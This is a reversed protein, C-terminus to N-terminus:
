SQLDDEFVVKVYTGVLARFGDRLLKLQDPLSDPWDDFYGSGVYTTVGKANAFRGKGHAILGISGVWFQAGGNALLGIKPLSPGVTVFWDDDTLFYAQKSFGIDKAPLDKDHPEVPPQDYPYPPAPPFIGTDGFQAPNVPFTTEVRSGRLIKGHLDTLPGHSSFYPWANKHAAIRNLDAPRLQDVNAPLNRLSIHEDNNFALVHEKEGRSTINPYSFAKLADDINGFEGEDDGPQPMGDPLLVALAERMRDLAEIVSNSKDLM